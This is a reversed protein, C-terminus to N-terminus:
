TGRGILLTGTQHPTVWMEGAKITNDEVELSGSPVSDERGRINLNLCTVVGAVLGVNLSYSASVRDLYVGQLVVTSYISEIGTNSLLILTTSNARVELGKNGEVTGVDRNHGCPIALVEVGSSLGSVGPSYQGRLQLDLVGSDAVDEQESNYSITVDDGERDVSNDDLGVVVDELLCATDATCPVLVLLVIEVLGVPGGKSNVRM